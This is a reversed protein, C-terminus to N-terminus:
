GIQLSFVDFLLKMAMVLISIAVNSCLRGTHQFVRHRSLPRVNDLVDRVNGPAPLSVQIFTILM